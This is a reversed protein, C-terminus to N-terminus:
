TSLQLHQKRLAWLGPVGRAPVRGRVASMRERPWSYCKTHAVADSEWLLAGMSALHKFHIIFDGIRGYDGGGRYIVISQSAKKVGLGRFVRVQHFDSLAATSM